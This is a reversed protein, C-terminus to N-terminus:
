HLISRRLSLTSQFTYHPALNHRPVDHLEPERELRSEVDLQRTRGGVETTFLQTPAKTAAPQDATAAKEPQARKNKKTWSAM